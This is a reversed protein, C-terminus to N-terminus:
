LSIYTLLDPTQLHSTMLQHKASRRSSRTLIQSSDTPQSTSPNDGHGQSPPRRHLEGSGQHVPRKTDDPSQLNDSGPSTGTILPTFFFHINVVHQALCTIM